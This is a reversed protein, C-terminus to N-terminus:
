TRKRDGRREQSLGRKRFDWDVVAQTKTCPQNQERSGPRWRCRIEDENSPNYANRVFGPM